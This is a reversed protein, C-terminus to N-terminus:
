EFLDPFRRKFYARGGLVVTLVVVFLILADM